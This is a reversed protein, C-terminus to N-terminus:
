RILTKTSYDGTKNPYAMQHILSAEKWLSDSESDSYKCSVELAIREGAAFQLGNIKVNNLAVYVAQHRQKNVNTEPQWDCQRFVEDGLLHNAHELGNRYFQETVGQTDNYAQFVRNLDQCADLGVLLFDAPDLVNAFESLFHAAEKPTFNGISSGLSMVCTTSRKEHERHEKALWALGDDYTGHLGCFEVFKYSGTDINSFTRDLEIAQVDLAFYQVHKQASEFADLL